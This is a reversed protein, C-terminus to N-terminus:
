EPCVRYGIMKQRTAKQVVASACCDTERCGTAERRKEQKERARIIPMPLFQNEYNAVNMGLRAGDKGTRLANFIHGPSTPQHLAAVQRFPDM